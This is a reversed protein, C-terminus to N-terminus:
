DPTANLVEKEVRNATSIVLGPLDQQFRKGSMFETLSVVGIAGVVSGNADSVTTAIGRTGAEHEERNFALGRARIDQLEELLQDTTTVTSDTYRQLDDDLLEEASEMPSAALIAKGPATCHLPLVAGDELIISEVKGGGASYLCLVHDRELVFAGAMVGSAKALLNIEDVAVQYLQRNRRIRSGTELFQLSARFRDDDQTVYGLEKLTTLHNHVGSKSLDLHEALETVGAGKLDVLADIIMFSTHTAKVRIRDEDVM